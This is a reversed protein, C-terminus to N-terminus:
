FARRIVGGDIRLAAGTMASALPSAICAVLLVLLIFVWKTIQV